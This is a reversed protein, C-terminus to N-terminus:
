FYYRGALALGLDAGDKGTVFLHMYLECSLEFKKNSNKWSIGIPARLGFSNEYYEDRFLNGWGKGRGREYRREQFVLGGGVYLNLSSDFSHFNYLFVGHFHSRGNAFTGFGLSGEIAKKDDMQYKGTIGTPGFLTLGLGFNGGGGGGGGSSQSYVGFSTLLFLLITIFFKMMEGQNEKDL